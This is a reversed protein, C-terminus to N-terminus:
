IIFITNCLSTERVMQMRTGHPNRTICQADGKGAGLGKIGPDLQASPNRDVELYRWAPGPDISVELESHYHEM